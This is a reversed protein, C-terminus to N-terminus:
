ESYYVKAAIGRGIPDSDFYYVAYPRLARRLKRVEARLEDIEEQMRAKIMAHTVMGSQHGPHEDCREQWTKITNSRKSM